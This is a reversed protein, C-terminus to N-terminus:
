AGYVQRSGTARIVNAMDLKDVQDALSELCSAIADMCTQVAASVTTDDAAPVYLSASFRGETCALATGKMVLHRAQSFSSPEQHVDCAVWDRVPYQNFDLVVVVRYVSTQHRKKCEILHEEGSSQSPYEKGCIPCIYVKEIEAEQM